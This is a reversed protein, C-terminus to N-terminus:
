PKAIRGSRVGEVALKVRYLGKAATIYLSKGDADGWACNSQIEPVHIRGLAKGTPSIIWIGGPGTAFLDGRKDVKMGDPLGEGDATSADYFVSGAGLSGDPKLEWRMWIKKTEGSNAVYLFREDPSFAIGNPNHLKRTLLQAQGGKLRGRSPTLRYVGAFDLERHLDTEGKELGYPPDTFYLSGDSKFVMDNPSNFRKGRYRDAITVLKGDEMRAIRRHSDDTVYLRGEGDLTLAEAGPVGGIFPHTRDLDAGQLFVTAGDKASWKHLVPLGNDTFLLYSGDAIWVPGETFDFGGALKEVTADPPIIGDLAPDFREISPTLIRDSTRARLEACHCVALIM